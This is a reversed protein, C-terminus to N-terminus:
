TDEINRRGKIQVYEDEQVWMMAEKYSDAKLIVSYNSSPDIVEYIGSERLVLLLVAPQYSTADIWAEVFKWEDVPVPEQFSM